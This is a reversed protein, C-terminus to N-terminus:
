LVGTLVASTICRAPSPHETHSTQGYYCWSMCPGQSQPSVIKSTVLNLIKFILTATVLVNLEVSVAEMIFLKLFVCSFLSNKFFNFVHFNCLCNANSGQMLAIGFITVYTLLLDRKTVKSIYTECDPMQEEFFGVCASLILCALLGM